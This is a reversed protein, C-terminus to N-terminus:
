WPYARADRGLSHVRHATRLNFAGPGGGTRRGRSHTEPRSGRAACDAPPNGALVKSAEELLGQVSEDPVTFSVDDENIVSQEAWAARTRAPGDPAPRM